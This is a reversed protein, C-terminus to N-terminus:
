PMVIDTASDINAIILDIMEPKLFPADCATIFAHPNRAYFLGTYVGTLSSRLPIIDTVIKLNLELYRLPENTVLIIEDFRDTFLDLLRDLIRRGGIKLQSKDQGDFRSNLGGALIIGTISPNM